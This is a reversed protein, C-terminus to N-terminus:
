GLLRRAGALSTRAAEDVPLAAMGPSIIEVSYPVSVGLRDLAAAFGVLDFAGEGCLRRRLTDEPLPGVPPADADSVQVCLVRGPPIRALESLPVGGRFIHWCDIVLGANAPALFDLAAKVDPVNSWPVIELAIALGHDAARACLMAFRAVMARRELGRGNFDAGVSVVSAGIANAAEFAAREAAQGAADDPLFWGTLFEVGRHRMGHRDFLGRLQDDEIGAAKQELYDRWHLWYGTYGAAAAARLREELGHRSARPSGPMVGSITHSSCMFERM